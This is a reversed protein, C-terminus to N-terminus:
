PIEKVLVISTQEFGDPLLLAGQQADAGSLQGLARMLPEVSFPEASTVFVFREFRPADDLQYAHSLGVTGTSTLSAARAGEEPLHRTVGGRGDLSLIAGYARGAAVYSVQLVDGPRARAGSALEEAGTASRRHLVLRPLLGKERTSEIGSSQELGGLPTTPEGPVLVFALVGAVAVSAVPVLWAPRRLHRPSLPVQARRRIEALAPGPPFADLLDKDSQALEELRGLGGEAELRARVARAEDAPLEQAALREVLWQPTRQPNSM